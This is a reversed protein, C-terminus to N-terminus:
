RHKKDIASQSPTLTEESIWICVTGEESGNVQDGSVFVMQGNKEGEGHTAV